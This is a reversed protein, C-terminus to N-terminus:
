EDQWKGNVRPERWAVKSMPRAAAVLMGSKHQSWRCVRVVLAAVVLADVVLRSRFLVRWREQTSTVAVHMPGDLQERGMPGDGQGTWAVAVLQIQNYM